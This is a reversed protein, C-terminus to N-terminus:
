PRESGRCRLEPRDANCDASTGGVGSGAEVAAPQCGVCGALRAWGPTEERRLNLCPGCRVHSTGPDPAPAARRRLPPLSRGGGGRWAPDFPSTSGAEERGVEVWEECWLCLGPEM